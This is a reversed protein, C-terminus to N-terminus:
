IKLTPLIPCGWKEPFLDTSDEFNKSSQFTELTLKAKQGVRGPKDTLICHFTVISHLIEPRQAKKIYHVTSIGCIQTQVYIYIHTYVNIM